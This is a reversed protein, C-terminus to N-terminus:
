GVPVEGPASAVDRAAPVSRSRAEQRRLRLRLTPPSITQAAMAVACLHPQAAVTIREVVRVNGNVPGPKGSCNAARDPRWRGPGPSGTGNTDTSTM